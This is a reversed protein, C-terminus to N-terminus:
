DTRTGAVGKAYGTMLVFTMFSMLPIYLDPANADELPRAYMAKGDDKREGEIPIRFWDKKIVPLLLVKMKQMVYTNNVAFYGKLIYWWGSVRPQYQAVNSQFFSKAANGGMNLMQANVGDPAWQQWDLPQQHDQGAPQPLPQQNGSRGGMGFGQGGQQVVGSGGVEGGGHGSVGSSSFQKGAGMGVGPMKRVGGAGAVSGSGFGSGTTAGYRLSTNEKGGIPQGFTSGSYEAPVGVGRGGGYNVSTFGGSGGGAG